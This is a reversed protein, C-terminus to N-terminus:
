YLHGSHPGITIAVLLFKRSNAETFQVSRRVRRIDARRPRTFAPNTTVTRVCRAAVAAIRAAHQPKGVPRYRAPALQITLASEACARRITNLAGSLEADQCLAVYDTEEIEDFFLNGSHDFCQLLRISTLAKMEILQRSEAM